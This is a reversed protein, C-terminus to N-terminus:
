FKFTVDAIFQRGIQPYAVGSDLYFNDRNTVNNITLGLIAKLDKNLPIDYTTRVDWYFTNKTTYPTYMDYQENNKDSYGKSIKKMADVKGQYSIFNNISLPIRDFKINWGLRTTWPTNFIESPKDEANILKGDYYIIPTGTYYATSYSDFNRQTETYDANLSFLHQTGFLKLPSINILSLTYINSESKGENDYTYSFRNTSIAPDKVSETRRIQDKNKRNVWKLGIRSNAYEANIGFMTEDAYPTDLQSRYTFSGAYAKEKWDASLNDRTQRIILLGKQDQLENYFANLGYYRNWGTTFSLQENAFPKFVFSSRPAVNNNKTLSDYDARFGLTATFYKDWQIQDQLFAHWRDQQVEIKGALYSTRNKLFQGDQGNGEDCADYKHGTNSYCSLNAINGTASSYISTTVPRKWHANYHGYGGGMKFTHTTHQTQIPEFLAKLSYELKEEQQQTSGFSGEIQMGSSKWNKTSSKLWSINDTASKRNATQTQYNAQQELEVSNLKNKLNIYFSQSDSTHSSQSNHTSSLFYDGSSEMFQTGIKLVTNDSPTYFFEIGANNSGRKQEYSDPNDISTKLPIDARRYSGFANLGLSEALKGYSTASIGQRTFFPQKSESTSNEFEEAAEKSPFNIDSWHDSTYDYSLSGHIKGIETQPVCTEASVVGGTFEGFEAGVNSDLLTIKCLLDANITVTQSSGMIENLTNSKADSGPNINNNISLGNILFKNDYPLSGNISIDTANLEGQQLGSRANSDFQVNPNVKLLETITKSGNPIQQIDEKNYVTKGVENETKAQIVITSFKVSAQSKVQESQDSKEAFVTSSLATLVAISLPSYAFRM